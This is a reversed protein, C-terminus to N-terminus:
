NKTKFHKSDGWKGYGIENGTIAIRADLCSSCDDYDETTCPKNEYLKYYDRYKGPTINPMIINAGATIAKERGVPDLAQMATAAAINIDKMMVRLISIMKLALDFRKEKSFLLDRHEYLPTDPHEIYPGMGCMDIDFDNMFLLDEALEEYTQFPLGIMVGTGIQYGIKRLIKLCNLRSQFDHNNNNPHIKKYIEPNSSEIRLLYRHAGSEFWHRYTEESQEGCSLTIGLENNSITKIKHILNTVRATFAPSKIEGSQLVISGYNNDYAYKVSTLIEDDTLEYRNVNKNDFRIGCYYCNKGCINSFEVLGRFYVINGVFKKKFEAAKTFLLIREKGETKLLRVIDERSLNPKKLIDPIKSELIM